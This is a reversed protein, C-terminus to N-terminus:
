LRCRKQLGTHAIQYRCFLFCKLPADMVDEVFYVHGKKDINENLIYRNATVCFCFVTCVYVLHTAINSSFITYLQLHPQSTKIKGATSHAGVYASTPTKAQHSLVGPDWHNENVSEQDSDRWVNQCCAPEHSNWDWPAM